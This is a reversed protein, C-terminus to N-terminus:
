RMRFTVQNSSLWGDRVTATYTGAPMQSGGGHCGPSSAQRNWSIPLVTPVGRQLNTDLDGAGQVCDASSWVRVSGAKVIVAIHSAGVNFVCTPRGTGVVDVTFQPLQGAGYSQKATFLSLVVDGHHCAGPRASQQQGGVASAQGPSAGALDQQGGGGQGGGDQGGSDQDTGSAQGAGGAGSGSAGGTTGGGVAGAFAWAILALVALGIALAVVRRRWYVAAASHWPRKWTGWRHNRLTNLGM